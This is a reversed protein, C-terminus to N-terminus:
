VYYEGAHIGYSSVAVAAVISTSHYFPTREYGRDLPVVFLKYDKTGLVPAVFVFADIECCCSRLFCFVGFNHIPGIPLALYPRINSGNGTEVLVLHWIRGGLAAFPTLMQPYPNQSLWFRLCM